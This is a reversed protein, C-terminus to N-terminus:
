KVPFGVSQFQEAMFIGYGNNINSYVNVPEGYSAGSLGRYLALGQQYEFETQSVTHLEVWVQLNSFQATDLNDFQMKLEKAQGNFGKDSFLLFIGDRVTDEVPSLMDPGRAEYYPAYTTDGRDDVSIQNGGLWINIRYFNLLAPNDKINFDVVVKGGGATGYQLMKATIIQAPMPISDTATATGYAPHSVSISYTHGKQPVLSSQYSGYSNVSDSPVWPLQEAFIGDQYLNVNAGTVPTVNNSGSLAYSKTIYVVIKGNDNFLSNIVMKDAGSELSPNFDKECSFLLMLLLCCLATKKM